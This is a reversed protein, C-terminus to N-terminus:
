KGSRGTAATWSTLLEGFEESLFIKRLSSSYNLWCSVLDLEGM